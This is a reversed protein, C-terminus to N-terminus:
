GFMPCLNTFDPSKPTVAHEHIALKTMMDIEDELSMPDPELESTLPTPHFTFISNCHMGHEDFRTEKFDFDDPLVMLHSGDVDIEHDLM